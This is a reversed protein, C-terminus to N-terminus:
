AKRVEDKESLADYLRAIAAHQMAADFAETAGVLRVFELISVITLDPYHPESGEIFPGESGEGLWQGLKVLRPEAAELQKTLPREAVWEELTKGWRAKRKALFGQRSRDSLVAPVHGVAVQLLPALAPFFVARAEVARPSTASLQPEPILEDLKAIIRPPDMLYLDETGEAWFRLVPLEYPEVPDDKAPLSTHAFTAEIDPYEVPEINYALGKRHLAYLIRLTHHSWIHGDHGATDYVVINPLSAM